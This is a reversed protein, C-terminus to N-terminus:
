AVGLGASHTSLHMNIVQQVQELHTDRLPEIFVISGNQVM